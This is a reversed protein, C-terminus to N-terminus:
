LVELNIEVKVPSNLILEERGHHVTPVSKVSVYSVRYIEVEKHFRDIVEKLEKELERKKTQIAEM